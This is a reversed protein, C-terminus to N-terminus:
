RGQPLGSAVPWTASPLMSGAGFPHASKLWEMVRWDLWRRDPDPGAAAVFGMHGGGRTIHLQVAPGTRLGRFQEVTILPDDDAAIIWTTIRIEPLLPASSCRRYYNEATGFDWMPATVWNDFEKLSRPRRRLHFVEVAPHKRRRALLRNFLLLAFHRDYIRSVGRQLFDMCLPLDVPPCVALARDIPWPADGGVEGLLKLMVNGGMSFGVLGIPSDGCLRAVEDLAVRVDGTCGSHYSRRALLTGAGAGRLDLRFVRVGLANLKSGIRQMNASKHCGCLGHLFTVVRQGPRWGPPCDDHLVMWDGDPLPVLHPVAQYPPIRGTLYAGALTQLHGNRLLPHPVFARVEEHSRPRSVAQM